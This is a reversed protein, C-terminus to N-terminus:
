VNEKIPDSSRQVEPASPKIFYTFPLFVVLVVMAAILITHLGQVYSQHAVRTIVALEPHAVQPLRPRSGQAIAESSKSVLAAAPAPVGAGALRGALDGRVIFAMATGTAAVGLAPGLSGMTEAVGSAVGAVKKAASSVVAEIGVPVTFAMSFGLTVLFPWTSGYGSGVSLRSLGYFSVLSFLIGLALPPRPGVKQNLVGGLPAAAIGAVSIPLLELGTRLPSAGQVNQLFLSLYFWLAFMLGSACLVLLCGAVFSRSHFIELPLLPERTTRERLVFLTAFLVATVFCVIPLLGDWGEDAAQNVGLTLMSLAVALLSIGPVDLSREADQPASSPILLLTLVFAVAGIVVNIFFAWRWGAYEVVIGGVSPGAASSLAFVGTFVGIAIKFKTAPFTLRLIALASPVLSAGCLGQLIRFAILMGISQSLGALVSSLIFGIIGALFIRRHGYRDGIRGVAVLSAAYALMYGTTIWLLESLGTHLDRSITPSAVTVITADVGHMMTALALAILGLWLRVPVKDAPQETASGTVAASINGTM